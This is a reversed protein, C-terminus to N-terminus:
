ALAASHEDFTSLYGLPTVAEVIYNPLENLLSLSPAVGYLIESRREDEFPWRAKRDFSQYYDIRLGLQSLDECGLDRCGGPLVDTGCIKVLRPESERISRTSAHM